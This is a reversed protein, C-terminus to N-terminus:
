SRLAGRNTVSCVWVCVCVCGLISHSRFIARCLSCLHCMKNSKIRILIFLSSSSSFFSECVFRDFRFSTSIKLSASFSIWIKHQQQESSNATPEAYVTREMWIFDVVLSRSLAFSKFEFLFLLRVSRILRSVPGSLFPSFLSSFLFTDFKWRTLRTAIFADFFCRSLICMRM